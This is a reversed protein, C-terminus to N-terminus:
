YNNNPNRFFRIYNRKSFKLKKLNIRALFFPVQAIYCIPVMISVFILTGIGEDLTDRIPYIHQRVCKGRYINIWVGKCSADLICLM